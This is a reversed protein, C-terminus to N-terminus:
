AKSSTYYSYMEQIDAETLEGDDYEDAYAEIIKAKYQSYTLMSM